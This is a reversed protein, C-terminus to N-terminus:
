FDDMSYQLLSFNSPFLLSSTSYPYHMQDHQERLQQTSYKSRELLKILTQQITVLTTKFVHNLYNIHYAMNNVFDSM